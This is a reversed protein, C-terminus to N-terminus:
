YIILGLQKKKARYKRMKEAQKKKNYYKSYYKKQANKVAERQKLLFDQDVICRIAEISVNFQISLAKINKSDAFLMKVEERQAITLKRRGDQDETYKLIQKIPM